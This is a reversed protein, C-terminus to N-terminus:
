LVRDDRLGGDGLADVGGPDEEGRQHREDVTATEALGATGRFEVRSEERLDDDQTHVGQEASEDDSPAVEPDEAACFGLEVLEAEGLHQELEPGLGTDLLGRQRVDADGGHHSSDQEGGQGHRGPEEVRLVLM